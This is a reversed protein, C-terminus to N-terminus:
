DKVNLNNEQKLSAPIELIKSNNLEPLLINSAKSMVPYLISSEKTEQSLILNTEDWKEFFYVGALLFLLVKILGFIVGGLKNLQKLQIFALMKEIGKALLLGIIVTAVFLIAFSVIPLYKIDVKEEMLFYIWDGHNTGIWIGLFLSIVGLVQSVLGKKYGIYIGWFLPISITIDLWM